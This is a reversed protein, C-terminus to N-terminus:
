DPYDLNHLVGITWVTELIWETHRTPDRLDLLVPLIICFLGINYMQDKLIWFSLNNVVILCINRMNHLQITWKNKCNGKCKLKQVHLTKLSIKRIQWFNSTVPIYVHSIDLTLYTHLIGHNIKVVPVNIANPM